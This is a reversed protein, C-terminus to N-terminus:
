LLTRPRSVIAAIISNRWVHVSAVHSQDEAM